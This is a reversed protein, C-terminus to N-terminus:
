FDSGSHDTNMFLPVLIHGSNLMKSRVFVCVCQRTGFAHQSSVHRKVLFLAIGKEPTNGQWVWYPLCNQFLCRKSIKNARFTWSESFHLRAFCIGNRETSHHQLLWESAGGSPDFLKLDMCAASANGQNLALFAMEPWSLYMHSNQM